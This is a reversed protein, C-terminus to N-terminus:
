GMIVYTTPALVPFWDAGWFSDDPSYEFASTDDSYAWCRVGHEFTVTFCFEPYDTDGQIFFLIAALLVVALGAQFIDSSLLSRM